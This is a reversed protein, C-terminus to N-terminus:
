RCLYLLKIYIKDGRNGVYDSDSYVEIQLHGHKRYILDKGPKSKIYALVRLARQWHVQRPVHVFQNLLRVAFSIDLWIVILYILKGIM